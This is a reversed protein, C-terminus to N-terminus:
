LVLMLFAIVSGLVVALFIFNRIPGRPAVPTIWDGCYPCKATDEHVSKGCAPCMLLDVERPADSRLDADIDDLEDGEDRYTDYDDDYPSRTSM